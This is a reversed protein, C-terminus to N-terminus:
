QRISQYEFSNRRMPNKIHDQLTRPKVLYKNAGERATLAKVFQKKHAEMLDWYEAEAFKGYAIAAWFPQSFRGSEFTTNLYENQFANDVGRDRRVLKTNHCRRYYRPHDLIWLTFLGHSLSPWATTGHDM